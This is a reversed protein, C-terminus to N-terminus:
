IPLNAPEVPIEDEDGEHEVEATKQGAAELIEQTAAAQFDNVAKQNSVTVYGLFVATGNEKWNPDTPDGMWLGGRRDCTRKGFKVVPQDSLVRRRLGSDYITQTLNLSLRPANIEILNDLSDILAVAKEDAKVHERLAKLVGFMEVSKPGKVAQVSVPIRQRRQVKPSQAQSAQAAIEAQVADRLSKSMHNELCCTKIPTAFVQRCCDMRRTALTEPVREPVIKM